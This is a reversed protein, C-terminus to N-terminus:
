GKPSERVFRRVVFDVVRLAHAPNDGLHFAIGATTGSHADANQSGPLGHFDLMVTINYRHTGGNCPHM